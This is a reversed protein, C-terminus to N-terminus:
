DLLKFYLNNEEKNKTRFSNSIFKATEDLGTIIPVLDFDEVLIEPDLYSYDTEFELKWIKHKGKFKTGFEYNKLSDEVMVPKKEVVPNTRLGVTQLLTMFNQQRHWAPDNKNFRAETNTIDVLTYVEYRM